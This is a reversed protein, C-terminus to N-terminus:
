NEVRRFRLSVALVIGAMTMILGASQVALSGTHSSQQLLLREDIARVLGWIVMATATTMGRSWRKEGWLLGRWLLADEAGQILPVPVRRGVQGEYSLGFWQHTEHGGGAVMFQPGLVRGLAWGAVIAPVVVDLIELLRYNSWQRRALFLGIPLAGAIGGFSSLGGHWIAVIQAPADHYFTWNTAVHAIRAGVVGSVVTWAAIRPWPTIDLGHHRLRRAIYGYTVYAAIGLGIGYLYLTFPGVHLATPVTATV